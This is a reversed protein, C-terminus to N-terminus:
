PTKRPAKPLAGFEVGSETHEPLTQASASLPPTDSASSHPDAPPAPLMPPYDANGLNEDASVRTHAEGGTARTTRLEAVHKGGTDWRGVTNRTSIKRRGRTRANEIIDQIERKARGLAVIDPTDERARAVRLIVRHKWLSLDETYNAGLAPVEIYQEDFPDYVHIRSIDGPHYKVKVARGSVGDGQYAGPWAGGADPIGHYDPEDQRETQHLNARKSHRELRARLPALQPCNYRLGWLEVGYHMITRYTVRSLVIRLEELSHPLRPLFGGQVAREWERAPVARIGRHFREAFFDVLFKHIIQDVDNLSICAERASNYDGRKGPNSFTTGPLTHFLLSNFSNFEREIIGKFTPTRVPTYFLQIGLQECAERLDRGTFEKGNDVVLAHPIGFALWDHKTGYRERIDRKPCIANYLCDMVSRSSPPEFGIYIGVPYRTYIDLMFTFNLRGLPLNDQDDVVMFDARTHDIEVRQLPMTPQTSQGYQTFKRRAAVAGHKAAYASLQETLLFADIRRGVTPRSPLKLHETPPLTRNCEEIRVAVERHVDDISVSERVLYRERIATEVINNAAEELRAMRPAGCRSTGPVLARLDCGSDEYDKLWRYVSPVSVRLPEGAEVRQGGDGARVAPQTQGKGRGKGQAKGLGSDPSEYEAKIEAVRAKVRALTRERPDIAVLPEIVHLRRRAIELLPAPCDSLAMYNPNTTLAEEQRSVANASLAVGETSGSKGGKGVKGVVEFQLEGTFLAHTLTTIEVTVYAQTLINEINAKGDPLLRKFEYSTDGWRFRVGPMFSQTGM